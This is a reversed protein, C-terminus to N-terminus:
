QIIGLVGHPVLLQITREPASGKKSVEKLIIRIGKPLGLYPNRAWENRWEISGNQKKYAYQFRFTEFSLLTEKVPEDRTFRKVLKEELRELTKGRLKYSVSYLSEEFKKDKYRKLRTPFKLTDTEGEFPVEAYYLANRLEKRLDRILRNLEYEKGLQNEIKQYALFGGRFSGYASIALVSFLSIAIVTEVLTFGIKCSPFKHKKNRPVM